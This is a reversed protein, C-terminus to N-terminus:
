FAVATLEPVTYDFETPDLDGDCLVTGTIKWPWPYGMEITARRLACVKSTSGRRQYLPGEGPDALVASGDAVIFGEWGAVFGHDQPSHGGEHGGSQGLGGM